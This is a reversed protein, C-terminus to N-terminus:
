QQVLRSRGTPRQTYGAANADALARVQQANQLASDALSDAIRHSQNQLQAIQQQKQQNRAELEKIKYGMGTASSKLRSEQRIHERDRDKLVHEFETANSM